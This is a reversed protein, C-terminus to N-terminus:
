PNTMGRQTHTGITQQPASLDDSRLSLHGAAFAGPLVLQPKGEAGPEVRYRGSEEGLEGGARRLGNQVAQHGVRKLRAQGGARGAHKLMRGLALMKPKRLKRPKLSQMPREVEPFEELLPVLRLALTVCLTDWM